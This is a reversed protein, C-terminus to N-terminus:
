YRAAEVRGGGRGGRGVAAARAKEGRPETPRKGKKSPLM